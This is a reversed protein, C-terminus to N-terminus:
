FRPTCDGAGGTSAMGTVGTIRVPIWSGDGSTPIFRFVGAVSANAVGEGTYDLWGALAPVGRFETNEVLFRTVELDPNVGAELKRFLKMILREGFVISTNSQEASMRKVPTLRGHEGEPVAGQVRHGRFRGTASLM